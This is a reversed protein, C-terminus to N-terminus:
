KLTYFVLWPNDGESITSHVIGKLFEYKSLYDKEKRAIAEKM